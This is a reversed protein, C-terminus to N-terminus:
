ATVGEMGVHERLTESTPPQWDRLDIKGTVAAAILASRREKLLKIFREAEAETQELQQKRKFVHEVISKQEAIPPVTTVMKRVEPMGITKITAGATSRLLEEEMACFIFLLFEPVIQERCVWAILHQSVAMPRTTIATLGITADRTFVVTGTPLIHAASNAMGLANIQTVTDEIYDYNALTKSDNLSVWPIDCDEWYEPISKSPTHGSELKAVWKVRTVDWHAPVEGLWEVGSDKMAVDPDLGKTVAHSIVAQRKEKLLEILRQQEAILADIRATQHHLFRGIQTQEDKSPPIALSLNEVQESSVAEFTSGTAISDFAQDAAYLAWSLLSRSTRQDPSIGCLGRGIGYEQDAVNLAGVPARVSLLIDGADAHKKAIQCYLKAIPSNPGFEANGQLFPIADPSESDTYDNSDPSQGMNVSAVHKLRTLKWNSPVEGLWDSGSDKYEPYSPYSM